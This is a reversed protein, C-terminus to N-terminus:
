LRSGDQILLYLFFQKVADYEWRGRADTSTDRTGLEDLIALRPPKPWEWPPDKAAMLDLVDGVTWYRAFEALDCVVFAARTKGVGVPGSLFLPWPKKGATLLRLLARLGGDVGDLSREVDPRVRFTDTTRPPVREHCGPADIYAAMLAAQNIHEPMPNDNRM